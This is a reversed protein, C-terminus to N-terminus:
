INEQFFICMREKSFGDRPAVQSPRNYKDDVSPMLQKQRKLLEVSQDQMYFPLHIMNRLYDRGNIELQARQNLNRDVAKVIINDDIALIVIYPSQTFLVNVTELVDLVRDQECSDLGNVEVVLRTQHPGICDFANVMGALHEVEKKLCIMFSEYSGNGKANNM